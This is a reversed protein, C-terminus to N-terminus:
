GPRQEARHMPCRRNLPLPYGRRRQVVDQLPARRFRPNCVTRGMIEPACGCTPKICRSGVDVGNRAEEPMGLYRGGLSVHSDPVLRILLSGAQDVKGYLLSLLLSSMPM